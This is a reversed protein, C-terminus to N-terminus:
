ETTETEEEATALNGFLDQTTVPKVTKDDLNYKERRERKSELIDIAEDESCNEDEMIFDIEDKMGYQKEKERRLWKDQESEYSNIEQFQLAIKNIDYNGLKFDKMQSSNYRAVMLTKDIADYIFRMLNAKDGERSEVLEIEDINKAYGSLVKVDASASSAPLKQNVMFQERRSKENERISSWDTNSTIYELAMTVDPNANEQKLIYGPSMEDQDTLKLNRALAIPFKYYFEGRENDSIKLTHLMQFTYLAINPEGWFDWGISDRLISVPIKGYPNKNQPNNKIPINEGNPRTAKHETESWFTYYIEQNEDLRPILLERIKLYDKKTNVSCTDGQLLDLRLVKEEYDFVPMQLVCNFYKSRKYAEKISEWFNISYLFQDLAEDPKDNYMVIPNNSLVGVTKRSIIKDIIDDHFFFLKELTKESFPKKLFENKIVREMESKIRFYFASMNIYFKQRDAENQRKFMYFAQNLLDIGITEPIM